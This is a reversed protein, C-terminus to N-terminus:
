MSSRSGSPDSARAAVPVPSSPAASPPAWPASPTARYVSYWCPDTAFYHAWRDLYVEITSPFAPEWSRVKLGACQETRSVRQPPCDLLETGSGTGAIASVRVRRRAPARVRSSLGTTRRALRPRMPAGMRVRAAQHAHIAARTVARAAARRIALAAHHTRRVARQALPRFFDDDEAGAAASGAHGYHILATQALRQLSAVAALDDGGVFARDACRQSLAEVLSAESEADNSAKRAFYRSAPM